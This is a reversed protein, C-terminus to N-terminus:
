AAIYCLKGHYRDDRVRSAWGSKSKGGDGTKGGCSLTLVFLESRIIIKPFTDGRRSRLSTRQYYLYKNSIWTDTLRGESYRIFM